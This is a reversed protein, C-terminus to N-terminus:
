YNYKIFSSFARVWGFFTTSQSFFLHKGNNIKRMGRRRGWGRSGSWRGGEGVGEERANVVETKRKLSLRRLKYSHHGLRDLFYRHRFAGLNLEDIVIHMNRKRRSSKFDRWRTSLHWTKSRRTRPHRCWLAVLLLLLM